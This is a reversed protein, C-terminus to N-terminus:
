RARIGIRARSGVASWTDLELLYVDLEVVMSSSMLTMTGRLSYSCRAGYCVSCSSMRAWNMCPCAHKGPPPSSVLISSSFGLGNSKHYLYLPLTYFFFFLRISSKLKKHFVTFPLSNIVKKIISKWKKWRPNWRSFRSFDPISYSDNLDRKKM